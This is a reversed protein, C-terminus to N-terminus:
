NPWRPHLDDIVMAHSHRQGGSGALHPHDAPLEPHDHAVAEPDPVPWLRWALIIGAIALLAMCSMTWVPGTLSILAGTLPYAILWCAHSLTFQAAFLAPRDGAHASRRLLRGSPTLMASYGFGILLWVPLLTPLSFLDVAALLAGLILAGTGLMAGGLMVPRDDWETLLRPLLLAALMSGAGFSGLAVAVLEESLGLFARIMVVTGVIAVAGISSVTLNLAMLARLRPTALYIRLGKTTRHWIPQTGTSALVPLTVSAVLAASAAFGIATGAFLANFSLVTLLAAALAPSLLSELDFALRSLSLANTYDAEDTLVDPITAQFAPTFGASAAQMVLILAYIQWIADVFPLMIVAGMRVLDLTILMRRRDLREAVAAAVPALTVYALMKLTLATGLVLGAQAGALEFALLGLAVTTLGTGLLAIIQALFLHRYTRNSLVSLM